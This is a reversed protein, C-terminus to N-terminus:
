TPNHKLPILHKLWIFKKSTNSMKSLTDKYDLGVEQSLIEAAKKRDVMMTPDTYLSEFDRSVALPNGNRDFVDGRRPSLIIQGSYQKKAMKVVREDPFIELFVARGLLLLFVMTLVIFVAAMRKKSTEM